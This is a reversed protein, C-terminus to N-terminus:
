EGARLYPMTRINAWTDGGDQSVLLDTEFRDPTINYWVHQFQMGQHEFRSILAPLDSGEYDTVRAIANLINGMSDVWRRQLGDEGADPFTLSSAAFMEAGLWGEIAGRVAHDHEAKTYSATGRGQSFEYTWDGLVFDFREELPVQSLNLYEQAEVPTGVAVLMLGAMMILRNSKM